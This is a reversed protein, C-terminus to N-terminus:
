LNEPNNSKRSFGVIDFATLAEKELQLFPSLIKASNFKKLLYLYKSVSLSRM